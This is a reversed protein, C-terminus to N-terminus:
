EATKEAGILRTQMEEGIKGERGRSCYRVNVQRLFRGTVALRIQESQLHGLVKRCLKIEPLKAGIRQGIESVDNLLLDKRETDAGDACEFSRRPKRGKSSM